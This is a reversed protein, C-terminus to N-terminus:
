RRRGGDSGGAAKGQGVSLRAVDEGGAQVGGAHEHVTPTNSGGPLRHRRDPTVEVPVSVAM